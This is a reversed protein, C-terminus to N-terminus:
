PTGRTLQLDGPRSAPRIVWGPALTLTWGEGHVTPGATESPAPVTLTSRDTSVLVTAAELSGWDATTRFTPYVTGMGPIPTMGNTAFSSSRGSPMVLVPGEVFRRRLAAVRAQQEADRAVESSRLDAGDYRNAAAEPDAAPQLQAARMLLHGLDDTANIRRTWGPSWSDLLLGYAAGSPYAFTRVFTQNVAPARNLQDIADAVAEASSSVSAVTGTYQALGENMELRRENEAAGSFRAHRALRFTLADRVAIDRAAGVTGLARALARWELQLWYRADLTDLHDNQGDTQLLGIQPQVRHFLEHLMLRGRAHADGSTLQQWVLTTWRMGGWDMAANAFGLAPPWAASPQPQNAAISGTVPDAIVMPGCLSVGWLRGGERECLAAAEDFYAAAHRSDVQAAAHPARLSAAAVGVVVLRWRIMVAVSPLDRLM